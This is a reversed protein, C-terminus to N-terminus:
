CPCAPEKFVTELFQIFTILGIQMKGIGREFSLLRFSIAQFFPGYPLGPPNYSRERNGVPVREKM